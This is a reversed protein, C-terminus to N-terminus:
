REEVQHDCLKFKFLNLNRFEIRINKSITMSKKGPFIQFHILNVDKNNITQYDLM